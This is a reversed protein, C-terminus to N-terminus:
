RQTISTIGEMWVPLMSTIRYHGEHFSQWEAIPYPGHDGMVHGDNYALLSSWASKIGERRMEEKTPSYRLLAPYPTAPDFKIFQPPCVFGLSRILAKIDRYYWRNGNKTHAALIEALPLGTVTAILAHLYQDEQEPRVWEVEYKM